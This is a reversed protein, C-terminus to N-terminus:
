GKLASLLITKAIAAADTISAGEGIEREYAALAARAAPASKSTGEAATALGALACQQIASPEHDLNVRRGYNM